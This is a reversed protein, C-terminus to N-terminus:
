SGTWWIRERHRAESFESIDNLSARCLMKSLTFELPKWLFIRNTYSQVVSIWALLESVVCCINM